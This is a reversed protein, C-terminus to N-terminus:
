NDGINALADFVSLGQQRFGEHSLLFLVKFSHKVDLHLVEFFPTPVHVKWYGKFHIEEASSGLTDPSPKEM